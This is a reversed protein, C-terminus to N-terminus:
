DKKTRTRTGWGPQSAQKSKSKHQQCFPIFSNSIPFTSKLTSIQSQQARSQLTHHPPSAQHAASLQMDTSHQTTYQGTRLCVPTPCQPLLRQGLYPVSQSVASCRPTTNSKTDLKRPQTPPKQHTPARTAQEVVHPRTM